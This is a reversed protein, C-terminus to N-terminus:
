QKTEVYLNNQQAWNYGHNGELNKLEDYWKQWNSCNTQIKQTEDAIIQLFEDQIENHLEECKTIHAEATKDNTKVLESKINDVYTLLKENLIENAKDIKEGIEEMQKEYYNDM